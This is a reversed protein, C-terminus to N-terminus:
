TRLATDRRRLTQDKCEGLLFDSSSSRRRATRTESRRRRRTGFDAFSASAGDYVPDRYTYQTVYKGAPRGVIELNDSETVRTVIHLPMPAM